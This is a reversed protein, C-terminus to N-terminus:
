LVTKLALNDKSSWVIYLAKVIKEKSKAFNSKSCKEVM